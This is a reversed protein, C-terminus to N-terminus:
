EGVEGVLRGMALVDRFGGHKWVHERLTGECSFGATHYLRIAAENSALVYLYLRHLGLDVFAYDCLVRVADTGYGHSQSKIDIMLRGIEARDHDRDIDALGVCGVAQGEVQVTFMMQTPDAQYARFWEAQGSQAVYRSGFLWDFAANRWHALIPLDASELPRLTVLAGKILPSPSMVGYEEIM